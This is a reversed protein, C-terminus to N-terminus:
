RMVLLPHESTGEIEYGEETVIKKTDLYGSYVGKDSTEIIGDRNLLGINQSVYFEKGTSMYNFYEGIEKLGDKQLYTLIVRM